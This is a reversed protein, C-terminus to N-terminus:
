ACHYALSRARRQIEGELYAHFGPSCLLRAIEEKDPIPIFPNDALEEFATRAMLRLEPPLATIHRGLACGQEQAM